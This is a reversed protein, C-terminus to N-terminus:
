GGGMLAAIVVIAGAALAWAIAIWGADRLRQGALEIRAPEGTTRRRSGPWRARRAPSRGGRPGRGAASM